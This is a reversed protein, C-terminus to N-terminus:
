KGTLAAAAKYATSWAAQLNFGGTVADIDLVEGAFFLGPHRKCELTSPNVENLCVGGATVFEEKFSARGCCQLIDACVTNVLRGLGKEGLESWRLDERLGAKRLLIKWLRASLEEPATNSLYKGADQTRHFACWQRMEEQSMGTWNVCIGTRYGVESLHRAAYSSLKLTSPGSIGWDTLLLTGSSKFGTGPISLVTNKVSTGTLSNLEPDQVKLTFLSPCPSSTELDLSKLLGLAGGGTTVVIRDFRESGTDWQGDVPVIRDVRSGLRLEIDLRRIEREMARVVAPASRCVPFVRQDPQVDSAISLASFWKRCDEPGFEKLLRKMLIEGRPYVEKLSRIGQFTNTMNCKGGGTLALKAMPRTGAELLVTQFEPKRRKIEIACFCGAAGAGIIGIKM